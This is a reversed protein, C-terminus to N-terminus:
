GVFVAEHRLVIWDLNAVQVRGEAVQEADIRVFFHHRLQLAGHLQDVVALHDFVEDALGRADADLGYRYVEFFGKSKGLAEKKPQLSATRKVAPRLTPTKIWVRQEFREIVLRTRLFRRRRRCARLRPHALLM